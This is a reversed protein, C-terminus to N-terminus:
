CTRKSYYDALYLLVPYSWAKYCPNVPISVDLYKPVLPGWVPTRIVRTSQVLSCNSSRREWILHGVAFNDQIATSSWAWKWLHVTASEHAKKLRPSVKRFRFSYYFMKHDFFITGIRSPNRLSPQWLSVWEMQLHWVIVSALMSSLFGIDRLLGVVMAQSQEKESAPTQCATFILFFLCHKLGVESVLIKEWAWKRRVNDTFRLCMTSCM